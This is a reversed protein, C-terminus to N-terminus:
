FGLCQSLLIVVTNIACLVAIYQAIKVGEKQSIKKMEHCSEAFLFCTILNILALAMEILIM